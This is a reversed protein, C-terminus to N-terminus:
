KRFFHSILWEDNYKSKPNASDFGVYYFENDIKVMDYFNEGVLDLKIEIIALPTYAQLALPINNIPLNNISSITYKKRYEKSNM